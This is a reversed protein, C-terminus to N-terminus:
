EEVQGVTRGVLAQSPFRQSRIPSQRRIEKDELLNGNFVIVRAFKLGSSVKGPFCLSISNIDQFLDRCM